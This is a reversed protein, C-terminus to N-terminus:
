LVADKKLCLSGDRSYHYVGGRAACEHQQRLMGKIAFPVVVVVILIGAIFVCEVVDPRRM